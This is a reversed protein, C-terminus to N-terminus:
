TSSKTRQNNVFITLTTRAFLTGQNPFAMYTGHAAARAIQPSASLSAPLNASYDGLTSEKKTGETGVTADGPRGEFAEREEAAVSTKKEGGMTRAMANAAYSLFSSGSGATSTGPVGASSKYQSPDFRSQLDGTGAVPPTRPPTHFGTHTTNSGNGAYVLDRSGATGRFLNASQRDSQMPLYPGPSPPVFPSFPAPSAPNFPSSTANNAADKNDTSHAAYTSTAEPLAGAAAVEAAAAELVAAPVLGALRHRSEDITVAHVNDPATGDVNKSQSDGVQTNAPALASAPIFFYGSEQNGFAYTTSSVQTLKMPPVFTPPQQPNPPAYTPPPWSTETVRKPTM